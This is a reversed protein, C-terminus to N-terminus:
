DEGTKNSNKSEEDETQKQKQLERAKKRYYSLPHVISMCIGDM